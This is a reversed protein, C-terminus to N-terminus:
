MPETNLLESAALMLPMLMAVARKKNLVVIDGYKEILDLVGEAGANANAISMKIHKNPADGILSSQMVLGHRYMSYSHELVREFTALKEPSLEEDKTFSLSVIEPGNNM